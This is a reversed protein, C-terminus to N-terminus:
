VPEGATATINAKNAQTAQNDAQSDAKSEVFLHLTIFGSIRGLSKDRQGKFSLNFEDVKIYQSNTEIATIFEIINSGKGSVSVKIPYRVMGLETLRTSTQWGINQSKLEHKTLLAEIKKQQSLKFATELQYSFFLPKAHNLQVSLAANLQSNSNQQKLVKAIKNQRKELQQLDALQTAQWSFIPIVVFKIALLIAIVSLLLRYKQLEAM